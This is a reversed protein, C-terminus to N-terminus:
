GNLGDTQAIYKFMRAVRHTKYCEKKKQFFFFIFFQAKAEFESIRVDHCPENM